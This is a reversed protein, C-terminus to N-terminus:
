CGQPTSLPCSSKTFNLLEQLCRAVGSVSSGKTPGSPRGTPVEGRSTQLSVPSARVRSAKQGGPKVTMLWSPRREVSSCALIPGGGGGGPTSISCRGSAWPQPLFLSLSNLSAQEFRFGSGRGRNTGPTRQSTTEQWGPNVSGSGSAPTHDVRPNASLFGKGVGSRLGM